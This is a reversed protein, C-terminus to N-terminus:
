TIRDFVSHDDLDFVSFEGVEGCGFRLGIRIPNNTTSVFSPSDILGGNTDFRSITKCRFGENMKRLVQKVM